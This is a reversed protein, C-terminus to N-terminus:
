ASVPPQFRCSFSNQRGRDGRLAACLDESKSGRQGTLVYFSPWREGKIKNKVSLHPFVRGTLHLSWSTCLDFMKVIPRCRVCKVSTMTERHQQGPNTAHTSRQPPVINGSKEVEMTGPQRPWLIHSASTVHPKPSLEPEAAARM